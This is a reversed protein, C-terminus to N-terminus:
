RKSSMGETWPTASRSLGFQNRQSTWSNMFKWRAARGRRRHSPSDTFKIKENVLWIATPRINRHVIQNVHLDGLAKFVLRAYEYVLEAPMPDDGLLLGFFSESNEPQHPAVVVLYSDIQSVTPPVVLDPNTRVLSHLIQADRSARLHTSQREDEDALLDLPFRKLRYKQEPGLLTSSVTWVETGDVREEELDELEYEGFTKTEIKRVADKLREYVDRAANPVVPNSGRYDASRPDRELRDLLNGAVVTHQASRTESPFEPIAADDGFPDVVVVVYDMFFGNLGTNKGIWSGLKKAKKATGGVPARQTWDGSGHQNPMLWNSDNGRIPGAWYKVEILYGYGSSSLAIADCELWQVLGDRPDPFEVNSIVFWEADEADFKNRLDRAVRREGENVPLDYEFFPM